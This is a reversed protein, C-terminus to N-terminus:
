KHRSKQHNIDIDIQELKTEHLSRDRGPMKEFKPVSVKKLIQSKSRALSFVYDDNISENLTYVPKTQPKRPSLKSYDLVGISNRPHVLDYNVNYDLGGTKSGFVQQSRKQTEFSINPLHQSKSYISPIEIYEFRKDHPISQAMLPKRGQQKEFQVPGVVRSRPKDFDIGLISSDSISNNLVRKTQISSQNLASQQVLASQNLSQLQAATTAAVQSANLQMQQSAIISKNNNILQSENQIQQQLLMQQQQQLQHKKQQITKLRKASQSFHLNQLQFERARQKVDQSELDPYLPSKEYILHYKPNYMGFKQNNSTLKSQLIQYQDRSVMKFFPQKITPLSKTTDNGGRPQFTRHKENGHQQKAHMSNLSQQIHIDSLKQIKRKNNLIFDKEQLMTYMELSLRGAKSFMGSPDLKDQIIM